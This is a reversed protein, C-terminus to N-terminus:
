IKSLYDRLNKLTDFPIDVAAVNALWGPISGGPYAHVQYTIETKAGSIFKLLWYGTVEPIRVLGDKQPKYDPLGEFYVKVDKNLSYDYKFKVFSDRDKLPFPAASVIYHIQHNGELEMLESKKCDPIWDPMKDVAKLVEIIEKISVEIVMVGKSEDLPSKEVSRTYVKIDNKDKKLKWASQANALHFNTLASILILFILKLNLYKKPLM